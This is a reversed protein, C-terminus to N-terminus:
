RHPSPHPYWFEADAAPQAIRFVTWKTSRWRRAEEQDVKEISAASSDGSFLDRWAGEGKETARLLTGRM